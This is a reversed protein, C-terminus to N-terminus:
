GARFICVMSPFPAPGLDEGLMRFHLRGRLFRIEAHPYVLQHFWATDTRAPLLMIINVGRAQESVARAIWEGVMRGYPPNCYAWEGPEGWPTEPDLADAHPGVYREVLRNSKDAGVDVVIPFERSLGEFLSPPTEWHHRKASFLLEREHTDM